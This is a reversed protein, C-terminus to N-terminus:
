KKQKPKYTDLPDEIKDKIKRLNSFLSKPMPIGLENLHEIISTGEQVIFFGLAIDDLIGVIDNLFLIKPMGSAVMFLTSATITYGVFRCAYEKMVKSVIARKDKLARYYGLACDIFTLVLLIIFVKALLLDFFFGTIALVVGTISKWQLKTTFLLTLDNIIFKM